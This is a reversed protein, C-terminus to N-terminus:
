FDRSLGLVALSWFDPVPVFDYRFMFLDMFAKMVTSFGM